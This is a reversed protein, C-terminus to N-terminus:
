SLAPYNEHREIPVVRSWLQRAAIEFFKRSPARSRQRDEGLSPQPLRCKKVSIKGRLRDQAVPERDVDIDPGDSGIRRSSSAVADGAHGGAVNM